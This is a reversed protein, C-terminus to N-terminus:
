VGPQATAQSAVACEGAECQNWQVITCQGFVIDTTDPVIKHVMIELVGFIEAADMLMLCLLSSTAM